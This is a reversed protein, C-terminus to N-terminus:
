SVPCALGWHSSGAGVSLTSVHHLRHVAVRFTRSRLQGAVWDLGLAGVGPAPAPIEAGPGEGGKPFSVLGKARQVERQSGKVAWMGLLGMPRCAQRRQVGTTSLLPMQLCRESFARVSKLKTKSLRMVVWHGARAPSPNPPDQLRWTRPRREVDWPVDM